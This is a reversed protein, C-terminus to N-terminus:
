KTEHINSAELNNTKPTQEVLIFKVACVSQIPAPWFPIM